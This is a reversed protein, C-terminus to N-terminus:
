FNPFFRFQLGPAFAKVAKLELIFTNFVVPSNESSHFNELRQRTAAFSLDAFYSSIYDGKYCLDRPTCSALGAILIVTLKRRCFVRMWAGRSVLADM